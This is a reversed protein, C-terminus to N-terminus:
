TATQAVAEVTAWVLEVLELSMADSLDDHTLGECLATLDVVRALRRWDPPLVGGASTYGESFLPEILPQAASEYRLLNALDTLPTGSVAFEWDLVAAVTWRGSLPRVLLNRKNFDGHVLCADSALGALRSAWAWVLSHTRDRLEGPVRLRLNASELCLDVFRPMADSGELLPAGVATGPGLWGPKSFTFRAIAALTEGASRAAQAIAERDRARYLERFTIGEVYRLLAFPPLDEGGDPEAYIVEPAPVAGSVLRMLDIEKGCLSADHEYIHLVVPESSGELQLKFNANRLGDGLPEASVVRRGLRELLAAPITRRPSARLWRAEAPAGPVSL